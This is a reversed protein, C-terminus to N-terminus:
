NLKKFTKGKNKDTLKKRTENSVIHGKLSESIKKKQEDSMKRGKRSKSIKGKTEESLKRGKLTKSIRERIEKPIKKGKWPGPRGKTKESMKKRTEDSVGIKGKNWAKKGKNKESIKKRTEESIIKGKESNSIKSKTEESLKKGYLPHNEGRFFTVGLYSGGYPHLNYGNPYLTNYIKIFKSELKRAEIINDCEKLIERKFNERKYKKIAKLLLKGTGLYRDNLSMSGHSGVYQKNNVINTTIYVFYYKKIPNMQYINEM